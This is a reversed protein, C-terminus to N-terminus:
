DGRSAPPAAWSGYGPQKAGMPHTGAAAWVLGERYAKASVVRDYDDSMAGNADRWQRPLQNWSGLYWMTILNRAVPGYRPDDLITNRLARDVEEDSVAQADLLEAAALLAGVERAGIVRTLEDYYPEVMGSGLLDVRDFGTLLESLRLFIDLSGSRDGATSMARRHPKGDQVPVAWATM